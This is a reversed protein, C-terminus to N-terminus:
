ALMMMTASPKSAVLPCCAQVLWPVVPPSFTHWGPRVILQAQGPPLLLPTCLQADFPLDQPGQPCHGLLVDPPPPAPVVPEPAPPAPPELVDVEEVEDL